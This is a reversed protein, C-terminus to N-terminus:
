YYKITNAMNTQTLQIAYAINTIYKTIITITHLIYYKKASLVAM